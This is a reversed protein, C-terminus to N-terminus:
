PPHSGIIYPNEDAKAFESALGVDAYTWFLARLSERDGIPELGALAQFADEPLFAAYGIPLYRDPLRARRAAARVQEVTFTEGSGYDKQLRPWVERAYRRAASRLRVSQFVRRFM